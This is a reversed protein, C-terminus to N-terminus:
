KRRQLEEVVGAVLVPDRSQLIHDIRSQPVGLQVMAQGTREWLRDLKKGETLYLESVLECLRQETILDRNDYFRKIIRQQHPTHEPM